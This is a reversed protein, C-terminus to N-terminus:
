YCCGRGERGRGRRGNVGVGVFHYLEKGRVVAREVGVRAAHGRLSVGEVAAPREVMLHAARWAPQEYVIEGLRRSERQQEEASSVGVRPTLSSVKGKKM